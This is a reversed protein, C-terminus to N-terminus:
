ACLVDAERIEKRSQHHLLRWVASQMALFLFTSSTRRQEREAARRAQLGAAYAAQWCDVTPQRDSRNPGVRAVVAGALRGLEDDLFIHGSGKAAV